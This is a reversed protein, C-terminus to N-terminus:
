SSILCECNSYILVIAPFGDIIDLNLIHTCGGEGLQYKHFCCYFAIKHSVDGFRTVFDFTVNQKLPFRNLRFFMM